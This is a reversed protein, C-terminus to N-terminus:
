SAGLQLTAARAIELAAWDIDADTTTRGVTLRLAALAREPPHGMALLVPSPDTTGAHCASGTSASISPAEALLRESNVGIISVNLTNPLRRTPHGNLLIRDPLLQALRENLRDRTRAMSRANEDLERAAISCAAGLGVVLAVNETGARLGREQGGGGTVTEIMVDESIFLAAVGKPAYLKHGVVTILDVGLEAADVRLKGVSQAADTHMVSGAAHAIEALEAIRQVTGTENNAHMISVLTTDPKLAAEFAGPDVLGFEDVPLETISYGHDRELVACAALVAPHETVQTIVHGGYSRRALAVGRIALHDAETGSGTFVVTRPQVGLLGAVQERATALADAAVRGYAHNSSPNGFHTTLYPLMAEVVRPDVSTTANFDLYVGRDTVTVLKVCL